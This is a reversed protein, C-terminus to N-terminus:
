LKKYADKAKVLQKQAFELRSDVENSSKGSDLASQVNDIATGLRTLELKAANYQDIMNSDKGSYYSSKKQDFKVSLNNYENKLQALDDYQNGSSIDNTLGSSVMSFGVYAVVLITSVILIVGVISILMSTSKFLNLRSKRM